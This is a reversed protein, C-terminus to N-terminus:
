PNARGEKGESARRQSRDEKAEAGVYHPRCFAYSILYGIVQCALFAAVHAADKPPIQDCVNADKGKNKFKSLRVANENGASSMSGAFGPILSTM